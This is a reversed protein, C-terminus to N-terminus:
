ICPGRPRVRSLIVPVTAHRLCMRTLHEVMPTKGTGGWTVNGVSIVPAGVRLCIPHSSVDYLEIRTDLLGAALRTFASEM